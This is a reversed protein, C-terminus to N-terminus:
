SPRILNGLARPSSRGRAGKRRREKCIGTLVGGRAFYKLGRMWSEERLYVTTILLVIERTM